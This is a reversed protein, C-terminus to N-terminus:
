VYVMTYNSYYNLHKFSHVLGEARLSGDFNNLVKIREGGAIQINGDVVINYVPRYERGNDDKLKTVTNDDCRCQAIKEWNGSGKGFSLPKGNAIIPKGGLTLFQFKRTIPRGFEDSQLVQPKYRYLTHPSFYM